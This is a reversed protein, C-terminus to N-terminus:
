PNQIFVRGFGRLFDDIRLAKKGPIQLETVKIYGNSGSIKLYTRGDSFVSGPDTSEGSVEPLSRFVRIMLSQGTPTSIETYAGPYPSLGRIFNHIIRVDANWDIKCDEKRIKPAKKLPGDVPQRVPHVNGAQIAGITKVVLEAGTEMLKDHLEGATEDPGVSVKEQFLINGTDVTDELFFTTVGSETEGNMIARNIPAAGRYQPLLSAHLNFTGLAPVSWVERPLIRFAIVVQLDAAISALEQLFVPDKLDEPQLVPLDHVSAYTKVASSRVQLGRGAPKDPVTVVAVVNYGAKLIRDLSAVAIEPTGFFVISLNKGM